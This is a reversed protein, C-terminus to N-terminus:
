AKQLDERRGEFSDLCDIDGSAVVFGLQPASRAANGIDNQLRAAVAIMARGVLEHLIAVEIGTRKEVWGDPMDGIVVEAAIEAPRDNAVLQEEEGINQPDVVM